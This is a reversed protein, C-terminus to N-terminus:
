FGARSANLLATARKKPTVNKAKKARSKSRFDYDKVVSQTGKKSARSAKRARKFAGLKKTALIPAAVGAAAIGVDVFGDRLNKLAGKGGQDAVRFEDAKQKKFAGALLLGGAAVIGGAGFKSMRKIGQQSLKSKSGSMKNFAATGVAMAGIGYTAGAAFTLKRSDARQKPSAKRQKDVLKKGKKGKVTESSLFGKSKIPVVRGNIRVFRVGRNDEKKAM